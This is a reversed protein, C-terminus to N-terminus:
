RAGYRGLATSPGQSFQLPLTIAVEVENPPIECISFTQEEQFHLRLRSKVNNLGFGARPEGDISKPNLGIGSNRVTIKLRGKERFLDIALIGDKDLRSLGHSFANEVIPQLLMAPVLADHLRPEVHIAQRVRGAYRRDQLALYMETFEMEDRVRILQDEGREFTIRLLSSLQELMADAAAVDTRMLSSISNMTNFLFHPNLQMRLAQIRAHALQVALQSVAEEKERYQQYYGIARFLLFTAWFIVMNDLFEVNLYFRLRQWYPMRAHMLPLGPFCSVWIMEAGVSILISLPLLRLSVRVLGAWQLSPGLWFWLIWCIVGWICYQVLWARVLMSFAIRIGWSHSGVWEQVAFLLGLVLYASLFIAPHMFFPRSRENLRESLRSALSLFKRM